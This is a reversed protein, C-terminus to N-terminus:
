TEINYFLLIVLTPPPRSFQDRIGIENFYFTSLTLGLKSQIHTIMGGLRESIICKESNDFSEVNRVNGINEVQCSFIESVGWSNLLILFRLSTGIGILLNCNGSMGKGLALYM